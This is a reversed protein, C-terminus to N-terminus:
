LPKDASPAGGEEQSTGSGEYLSPSLAPEEDAQQTSATVDESLIEDEEQATEEEEVEGRVIQALRELVKRTLIANSLSSRASESSLAQRLSEGSETSNSAIKDVEADIDEPLVEIGEGQALKRLVLFRTLREQATARVEDRVEDRTKGVNRLYADMDMQRGQQAQLREELLHDIERNTTLDPVEVTAGKIIEELSSNEFSRQAAREMQETLDKLISAKLADQDAYGEGVGKAFEDDLEPLNKEKIELVQVNFRCEKGSITSDQYNEPVQLTFEKSEGKQTGELYISFGPFPFPNDQSPIFDVGRDDAVKKGEIFGDVNLAVLDGFKVPRDVPEWPAADYRMRQLVSDVQEDTVEVPEPQLRLSRFDGLDVIPELPVVAKFSLPDIEVLEVDPEGFSELAEDNIGRELAERIIVDLSERVLAERGVHNEVIYRPAKGRRFGPIQVRNVVKKYSRDLYPDVDTPELEINLLVQRPSTEERTIKM